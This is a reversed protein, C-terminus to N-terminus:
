WLTSDQAARCRLQGIQSLQTQTRMYTEAVHVSSGVHMALLFRHPEEQLALRRTDEALRRISFLNLECWWLDHSLSRAGDVVAM